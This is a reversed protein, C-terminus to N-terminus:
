TSYDANISVYEHTLDTTWFLCSGTGQHLEITISFERAAIYDHAAKEDFEAARGGNRCIALEGFSIDFREPDIQAGSYGIAAALRGWNPDGGSWATKVLPSHAIAKAVKLADADTAAGQSACSSLM